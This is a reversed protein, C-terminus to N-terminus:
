DTSDGSSLLSVLSILISLKKFLGFYSISPDPSNKLLSTVEYFRLELPM